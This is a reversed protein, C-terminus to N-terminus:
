NTSVTSVFESPARLLRVVEPIEKVVVQKEFETNQRLKDEKDYKLYYTSCGALFLCVFLIRVRFGEM